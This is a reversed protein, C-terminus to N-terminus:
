LQSAGSLIRPLGNSLADAPRVIRAVSRRASRFFRFGAILSAVHDDVAVAVVGGFRLLEVVEALALDRGDLIRRLLRGGGRDLDAIFNM